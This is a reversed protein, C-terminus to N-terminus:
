LTRLTTSSTGPLPPSPSTLDTKSRAKQLQSQLDVVLRQKKKADLKHRLEIEAAEKQLEDIKTTAATLADQLETTKTQLSEALQQKEQAEQTATELLHKQQELQAAQEAKETQLM